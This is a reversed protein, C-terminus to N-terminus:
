HVCRVHHKEEFPLRAGRGSSFNVAWALTPGQPPGDAYETGTWFDDAPTEPFAAQDTVPPSCRSFDVLTWLEKVNPLRWGSGGLADSVASGECFAKADAWSFTQSAPSRQWVLRTGNDRVVGSDAAYTYHESPLDARHPSRVCLVTGHYPTADIPSGEHWTVSWFGNPAAGVSTASYVPYPGVSLHFVDGTVTFDVVSLLEMVTPLRWDEFGRERVRDCHSPVDARDVYADVSSVAWMLSTVPDIAQPAGNLPPLPWTAWNRNPHRCTFRLTLPTTLGIKVAFPASVGECSGAHGNASVHAVYDTGEPLGSILLPTTDGPAIELAATRLFGGPATLAYTVTGASMEPAALLTLRVAGVPEGSSGPSEDHLGSVSDSESPLCSSSVLLAGFGVVVFPGCLGQHGRIKGVSSGDYM